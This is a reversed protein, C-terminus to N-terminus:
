KTVGSPLRQTVGPEFGKPYRIVGNDHAHPPFDIFVNYIRNLVKIGRFIAVLIGSDIAYHIYEPTITM